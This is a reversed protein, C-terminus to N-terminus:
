KMMRDRDVLVGASAMARSNWEKRRSVGSCAAVSRGRTM